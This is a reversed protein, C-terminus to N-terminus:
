WRKKDAQNNKQPAYVSSNMPLYQPNQPAPGFLKFFPKLGIISLNQLMTSLPHLAPDMPNPDLNMNLVLTDDPGIAWAQPRLGQSQSFLQSKLFIPGRPFLAILDRRDHRRIDATKTLVSVQM